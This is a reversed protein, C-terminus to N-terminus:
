EHGSASAMRHAEDFSKGELMAREMILCHELGHKKAHEWLQTRQEDSLFDRGKAIHHTGSTPGAGAPLNRNMEALFVVPPEPTASCHRRSCAENSFLAARPEASNKFSPTRGCLTVLLVPLLAHLFVSHWTM